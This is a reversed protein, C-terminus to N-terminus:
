RSQATVLLAKLATLRNDGLAEFEDEGNMDKGVVRYFVKGGTPHNANETIVAVGAEKLAKQTTVITPNLVPDPSDKNKKSRTV